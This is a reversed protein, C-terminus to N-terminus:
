ALKVKRGAYSSSTAAVRWARQEREVRAVKDKCWPLKLEGLPEGEFWRLLAVKALTEENHRLLPLCDILAGCTLTSGRSFATRARGIAFQGLSLSDRGARLKKECCYAELVCSSAALECKSKQRGRIGLLWDKFFGRLCVTGVWGSARATFMTERRTVERRLIGMRRQSTKCCLM